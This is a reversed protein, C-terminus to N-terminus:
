SKKTTPKAKALQNSKRLLVIAKHDERVAYEIDERKQNALVRGIGILVAHAEKKRDDLAESKLPIEAMEMSESDFTEILGRLNSKAKAKEKLKPKETIRNIKYENSM